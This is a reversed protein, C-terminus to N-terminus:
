DPLGLCVERPFSRDRDLELRVGALPSANLFEVLSPKRGTLREYTRASLVVATPRGRVTVLQPADEAERLLESFRARARDAGWRRM